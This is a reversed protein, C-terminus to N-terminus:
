GPVHHTRKVQLHPETKSPAPYATCHCSSSSETAFALFLRSLQRVFEKGAKGLPISFYNPRWHVVESYTAEIILTVDTASHIGWTFVPTSIPIFIPLSPSQEQSPPLSSSTGPPCSSSNQDRQTEMQCYHQSILPQCQQHHM